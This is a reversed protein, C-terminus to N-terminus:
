IVESDDPLQKPTGDSFQAPTEELTRETVIKWLEQNTDKDEGMLKEMAEYAKLMNKSWDLARQTVKSNISNFNAEMARYASSMFMKKVLAQQEKTEPIINGYKFYIFQPGLSYSRQKLEKGFTDPYDAIYSIKDLSSVFISTDFYLDVYLDLVRMPIGFAKSVDEKPADALLMAEVIERRVPDTQLKFAYDAEAEESTGRKVYAYYLRMAESYTKNTRKGNVIDQEVQLQRHRLDDPTM